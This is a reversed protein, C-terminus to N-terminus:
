HEPGHRRIQRNQYHGHNQLHYAAFRWLPKVGRHPDAAGHGNGYCIGWRGAVASKDGTDHNQQQNGSKPAAGGIEGCRAQAVEM